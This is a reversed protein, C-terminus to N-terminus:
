MSASAGRTCHGSCPTTTARTGQARWPARWVRSNSSWAAHHALWHELLATHRSMRTEQRVTPAIMTRTTASRRAM